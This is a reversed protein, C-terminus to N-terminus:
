FEFPKPRLIIIGEKGEMYSEFDEDIVAMADARSSAHRFILANEKKIVIGVHSVDLGKTGTYIGIYDGTKLRDKIAKSDKITIYNIEREKIDVGDLFLTGDEKLNLTKKISRTREGGIIRTVDDVFDSNNQIWDTFFHNRWLFSEDGNRYRIRKLRKLFDRYSGALRMAEVYDIFTFCDMGSLNVVLEEKIDKSGILTYGKYATNLFLGSIFGIREGPDEIAYAKKLIGDITDETWRGLVIHM